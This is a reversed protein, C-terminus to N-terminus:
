DVINRFDRGIDIPLHPLYKDMEHVHPKYSNGLMSRHYGVLDSTVLETICFRQIFEKLTIICYKRCSSVQTVKIPNEISSRHSLVM